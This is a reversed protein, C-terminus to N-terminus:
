IFFNDNAAAHVALDVVFGRLNVRRPRSADPTRDPWSYRRVGLSRGEFRTAATGVILKVIRNQVLATRANVVCDDTVVGIRDMSDTGIM